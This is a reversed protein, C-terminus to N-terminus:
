FAPGSSSSDAEEDDSSSAGAFNGGFAFAGAFFDALGGDFAPFELASCKFRALSFLLPDTLM